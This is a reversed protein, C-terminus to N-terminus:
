DDTFAQIEVDPFEDIEVVIPCDRLQLVTGFYTADLPAGRRDVVKNEPSTKISSKRGQAKASEGPVIVQDPMGRSCACPDNVACGTDSRDMLIMRVRLM